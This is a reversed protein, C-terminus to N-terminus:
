IPETHRCKPFTSCGWFAAGDAKRHRIVMPAGCRCPRAEEVSSEPPVAGADIDAVVESPPTLRGEHENLARRFVDVKEHLAREVAEVRAGNGAHIAVLRETGKRSLTGIFFPVFVAKEAEVAFERASGPLGVANYAEQRAKLAADSKANRHKGLVKRVESLVQAASRQQRVVPADLDVTEFSRGEDRAGILRGTLVEFLAWRRVLEEKDKIM